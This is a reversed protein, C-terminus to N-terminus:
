EVVTFLVLNLSYVYLQHDLKNNSSLCSKNEFYKEKRRKESLYFSKRFLANEKASINSKSNSSFHVDNKAIHVNETGPVSDLTTRHCMQPWFSGNSFPSFYKLSKTVKLDASKKSYKGEYGERLQLNSYRLANSSFM